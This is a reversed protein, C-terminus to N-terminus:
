LRILAGIKESAAKVISFIYSDSCLDSSVVRADYSSKEDLNSMGIKM